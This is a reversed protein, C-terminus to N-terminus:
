MKLNSATDQAKHKKVLFDDFQFYNKKWNVATFKPLLRGVNRYIKYFYRYFDTFYILFPLNANSM